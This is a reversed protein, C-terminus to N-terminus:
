RTPGRVVHLVRAAEACVKYGGFRPIYNPPPPTKRTGRVMRLTVTRTDVDVESVYEADGVSVRAPFEQALLQSEYDPLADPLLDDATLLSLDNAHEVGLELLRAPLFVDLPPPADRATLGLTEGVRTGALAAALSRQQTRRKAEALSGKFIRGQLFLQAIADRALQGTPPAERTNLVTGAYVRELTAVIRGRERTVGGLREEGLGAQALWALPVPMACTAILKTERPNSGIARTDLVLVADVKPTDRRGEERELKLRLASERGLDLEPGGNAWATGYKRHRAVYAARADAAMIVRALQARDLEDGSAGARRAEQSPLDLAQRLRERLKRAERLM